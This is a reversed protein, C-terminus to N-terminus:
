REVRRGSHVGSGILLAVEDIGGIDGTKDSSPLLYQAITGELKDPPVERQLLGRAEVPPNVFHTSRPDMSSLIWRSVLHTSITVESTKSQQSHEGLDNGLRQTWIALIWLSQLGPVFIWKVLDMVIIGEPRIGDTCELFPLVAIDGLPVVWNDVSQEQHSTRIPCPDIIM